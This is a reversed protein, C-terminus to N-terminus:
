MLQLFLSLTWDELLLSDECSQCVPDSHRQLPLEFELFWNERQGGLLESSCYSAFCRPGRYSSGAGM